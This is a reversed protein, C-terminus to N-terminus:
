STAGPSTSREERSRLGHRSYGIKEVLARLAGETPEGINSYMGTKSDFALRAENCLASVEAVRRVTLSRAAPEEFPAEDFFLRGEPAFTTGQVDLELLEKENGNIYVIKNVSM